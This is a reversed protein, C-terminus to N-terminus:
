LRNRTCRVCARMQCSRCCLIYKPLYSHCEECTAAGHRFAWSPHNCEHNYRLQEAARNVLNEFNVIRRVPPDNQIQNQVRREAAAHLRAEDWQVCSCNKWLATCLYCFQTRCLCTMHYCGYSLEVMQHCGPCRKWGSTEGLAILEQADTDTECPVYRPHARKKCMACVQIGCSSCVHRGEAEDASGIFRSCTPDPCYLRNPTQHERLKELFLARSKASLHPAVLGVPIELRCCRPPMLSEDKSAHEFLEVACQIDYVHGCPVVLDTSDAPDDCVVCRAGRHRPTNAGTNVSACEYVSDAERKTESDQDGDNSDVASGPRSISEGRELRRALAEDRLIQRDARVIEEILPRDTEVAVILSRALQQDQVLTLLSRLEDAYLQFAIEDDPPTSTAKRKDKRVAAVEEIEELHLTAFAELDATSLTTLPNIGLNAM